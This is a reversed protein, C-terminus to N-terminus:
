LGGRGCRHIHSDVAALLHANTQGAVAADLAGSRPAVRSELEGFDGRDDRRGGGGHRPLDVEARVVDLLLQGLSATGDGRVTLGTLGDGDRVREARAHGETGVLAPPVESQAVAGGLGADGPHGQGTRRALVQARLVSVEVQIHVDLPLDGRDLHRAGEGRVGVVPDGVRHREGGLVALGDGTHLVGVGGREVVGLGTALERAAVGIGELHGHRHGGTEAPELDRLGQAARGQVGDVDGVRSQRDLDVINQGARGAVVGAPLGGAREVGITEGTRGDQVDAIPLVLVNWPVKGLPVTTVRDSSM